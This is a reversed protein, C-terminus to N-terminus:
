KRLICSNVMAQEIFVSKWESNIFGAKQLMSDWEQISLFSYLGQRGKRELVKGYKYLKFAIIPINPMKYLVKIVGPVACALVIECHLGKFITSWILRGGPKLVRAFENFIRQIGEKGKIGEYEIMYPLVLNCVIGDFTNDAFDLREGLNGYKLELAPLKKAMEQAPWLIIDLGYIKNIKRNSKEWLFESMRAPGCGADLWTDGDQPKMFSKVTDALVRFPAGIEMYPYLARSDNWFKFEDAWLSVRQRTEHDLDNNNLFDVITKHDIDENGSCILKYLGTAM